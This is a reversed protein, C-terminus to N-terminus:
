WYRECQLKLRSQEKQMTMGHAQVFRRVESFLADAEKGSSTEQWLFVTGRPFQALKAKFSALGNGSYHAASWYGREGVRCVVRIKAESHFGIYENTKRRGAETKCLARIMKLKATDTLWAKGTALAAVLVPELRERVNPTKDEDKGRLRALLASEAKPSGYIGLMQAANAQVAPNADQLHAEALSELAVDWHLAAVNMLISQYCGTNQREELAQRIMSVGYEPSVRLFYALIPSQISCAWGNGQNYFAKAQPLLAVTGYRAILKCTLELDSYSGKAKLRESLVKDLGPVKEKPLITLAASSSRSHPRAIEKLILARGGSRDLEYLRRLILDPMEPNQGETTAQTNAWLRRLGPLMQPGRVRTWEDGLLYELPLPPLEDILPALQRTLGTLRAKAKANQGIQSDLWALELLTHLTMARASKNKVAVVDAVRQWAGLLLATQTESLRKEWDSRLKSRLAGKKITETDRAIVLADTADAAALEPKPARQLAGLLSLTNLFQQTVAYDPRAIAREMQALLWARDAFGILGFHYGWSETPSSRPRQDQGMRKIMALAAEHTGLFRLRQAPQELGEELFMGKTGSLEKLASQVQQHAWAPDAPVIKLAIINSTARLGGFSIGGWPGSSDKEAQLIRQSTAYIHYTGPQDFRLWENLVLPIETPTASLPAPDPVFGSVSIGQPVPLDGLPASVGQQPTVHFTGFSLLSPRPQMFRNLKYVGPKDATFGVTVPIIEGQQFRTKGVPLRLTCTVGPPNKDQAARHAVEFSDTANGPANDALATAPVISSVLGIFLSVGLLATDKSFKIKLTM